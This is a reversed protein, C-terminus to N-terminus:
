GRTVTDLGNAEAFAKMNEYADKWAERETNLRAVDHRLVEHLKFWEEATKGEHTTTMTNKYWRGLWDIISLSDGSSAEPQLLPKGCEKCTSGDKTRNRYGCDCTIIDQM